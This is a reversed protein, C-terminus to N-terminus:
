SSSIYFTRDFEFDTKSRETTMLKSATRLLNSLGNGGKQEKDAKKRAKERRKMEEKEKKKLCEHEAREEGSSMGENEDEQQERAQKVRGRTSWKGATAFAVIDGSAAPHSPDAYRSRFEHKQKTASAQSDLTKTTWKVQARRDRFGNIWQEGRDFGNMKKGNKKMVNIAHDEAATTFVLPATEPCEFVGNYRKMRQQMHSSLRTRMEVPTAKKSRLDKWEKTFGSDPDLSTERAGIEAGEFSVGGDLVQPVRAPQSPEVHVDEVRSSSDPRQGNWSKWTVVMAVLGRPIFYEANVRDIFRGGRYRSQAETASQVAMELAQDLLIAIPEPAAMGAWSILEIAQIWESPVIAKNFSDVFDLFEPQDIGASALVPSYARVFGRGRKKPRRQPIVIPLDIPSSSRHKTSDLPHRAIFDKAFDVLKKKTETEEADASPLTNSKNVATSDARTTDTSNGRHQEDAQWAAESFDPAHGSSEGTEVHETEPSTPPSKKQEPISHQHTTRSSSAGNASDEQSELTANESSYQVEKAAEKKEKRYQYAESVTGVLSAAVRVIGDVPDDKDGLPQNRSKKSVFSKKEKQWQAKLAETAYKQSDKLLSGMNSRPASHHQHRSSITTNTFCYHQHFHPEFLSRRGGILIYSHSCRCSSVDVYAKREFFNILRVGRRYPASVHVTLRAEVGTAAVRPDRMAPGPEGGFRLRSVAVKLQGHSLRSYINPRDPDQSEIM